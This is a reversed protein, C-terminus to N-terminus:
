DDDDAATRHRPLPKRTAGRWRDVNILVTGYRQIVKNRARNSRHLVEASNQFRAIFSVKRLISLNGRHDNSVERVKRIRM